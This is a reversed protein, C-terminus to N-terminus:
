SLIIYKLFNAIRNKIRKSKLDLLVRELGRFYVLDRVLLLDLRERVRLLDRDRQLLTLRDRDRETERDVLDLDRERKFLDLLEDELLTDFDLDLDLDRM